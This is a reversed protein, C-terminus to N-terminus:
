AALGRAHRSCLQSRALLGLTHQGGGQTRRNTILPLVAGQLGREHVRETHGLQDM